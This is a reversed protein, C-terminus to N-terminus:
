KELVRMNGTLFIQCPYGAAIRIGSNGSRLFIHNQSFFGKGSLFSPAQMALGRGMLCGYRIRYADPQPGVTIRNPM